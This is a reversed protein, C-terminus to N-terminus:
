KDSVQMQSILRLIESRKVKGAAGLQKNGRWLIVQKTPIKWFPVDPFKEIDSLIYGFVENLKRLFGSEDFSRGSGVM